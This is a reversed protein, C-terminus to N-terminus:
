PLAEIALSHTMGAIKLLSDVGGRRSARQFIAPMVPTPHRTDLLLGRRQAGDAVKGHGQSHGSM